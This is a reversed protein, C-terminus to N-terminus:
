DVMNWLAVLEKLRARTFPKTGLDAKQEAGPVHQVRLENNKIREKIWSSRLKLHRTRWSGSSATLLTVAAQNDVYLNIRLDRGTLEQLVGRTSLALLTGEIEEILESEATSLTVLPQRSSRWTLPSQGLFVASAGHSRGGSPAFSSDTYVNLEGPDCEEQGLRVRYGITENLYDLLRQGIRNVLEPSRTIRSSMLSVIYQIDPRTRSMLWMLEGVRKQAQKVEAELGQLDCAEANLLAEEEEHSLILLEKPGQSTSRAGNHKYSRLLERVFGEQGLEIGASTQHLEMGLFRISHDYDLVDLADVEWKDAVWQYFARLNEEGTQILLDDIYVLVYGYTQTDKGDERVIRWIQDDTVLQELKMTVEEGDAYGTWRALRLESDRFQSWLAPSERLGYIAQEVFWVQGREALGLEYAIAPPELAVPQGLWKALVFAQRVDTTGVKWPKKANFALMTRLSTADVGTAFLDTAGDEPVHNGCAVFRTKRRYGGKDPKVTYVGKCPVIRCNPPLEARSRVTFAKKVEALNHYEKFASQKWRSLHKRVEGLSVNHTVELASGTKDLEELIAEVDATYQVEAKKLMAKQVRPQEGGSPDDATEEEVQKPNFFDVEEMEVFIADQVNDVQLVKVMVKDMQERECTEEEEENDVEGDDGQSVDPQPNFGMEKLEKIDNETLKTGRPTYLLLVLREGKWPQVEHWRRPSFSMPHGKQLDVLHGKLERGSPLTRLVKVDEDVDEKQVWIAGGEELKLPIVYNMSNRSNHVDRHLGLQQNKALGVASFGINGCLNGAVSTLYRTTWPFVRTNNRLGAVGGHVFAGTYWSSASMKTSVRRDVDGLAELLDYLEVVKAVSFDKEELLKRARFEIEERLENKTPPHEEHLLEEPLGEATAPPLLDKCDQEPNVVNFKVSKAVTLGGDDRIIIHGRKVDTAPGAYWGRKWRSGVADHKKEAKGQYIKSRFWVENGFTTAPRSTWPSTPFVKAWLSASAHSMALPWDRAELNSGKLLARMRSKAWKVGLEATSNGAPDGGATKTHRLKSEVVWEKYAKAKFERARDTHLVDVHLGSQRLQLLLEKSAQLVHSTTRRRLPRTIYISAPEEGKTLKEVKEDLTESGCPDEEGEEGESPADDKCDEPDIELPDTEEDASDDPVYLEKELDPLAVADMYGKPCRYAAVLVYKYDDFEMDRGKQKFPGALDVALSFMGPMKRRRHQYGYAQANICVSCDARYPQHDNLLHQKWETQQQKTLKSVRLGNDILEEEEVYSGDLGEGVAQRVMERFGTSWANIEGQTLLSAPIGERQLGREGELGYLIPYNTAVTTPRRTRHGVTGMDFSVKRMGGISKFAKWLELDWFSVDETGEPAQLDNEADMEMIFGVPGRAGISALMWILMQKAAYATERHVRQQQLPPLCRNGYPDTPTRNKYYNVNRNEGSATTWTAKPPTGVVDSIRGTAAAWLLLQYAANCRHLDWLRSNAVNVELLVKGDKPILRLPDHHNHNEDLYLSVVWKRSALMAKRARRTLPRAKLYVEGKNVDFGELMM